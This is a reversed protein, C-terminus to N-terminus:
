FLFEITSGTHSIQTDGDTLYMVPYKRNNTEYGAPTRVLIVRDEGLVASKLSLKSITGVPAQAFAVSSLLILAFIGGLSRLLASNSKM